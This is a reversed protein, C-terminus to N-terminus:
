LRTYTSTEEQTKLNSGLLDDRSAAENYMDQIKRQHVVGLPNLATLVAHNPLQKKHARVYFNV